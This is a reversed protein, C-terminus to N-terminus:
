TDPPQSTTLPRNLYRKPAFVNLQKWGFAPFPSIPNPFNPVPSELFSQLSLFRITFCKKQVILSKISPTHTSASPCFNFYLFFYKFPWILFFYTSRWKWDVMWWSGFCAFLSLNFILSSLSISINHISMRFLLYFWIERLIGGVFDWTLSKPAFLLSM